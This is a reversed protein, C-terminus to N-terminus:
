HVVTGMSYITVTTAGTVVALFRRSNNQAITM